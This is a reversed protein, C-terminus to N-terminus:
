GSPPLEELVIEADVPALPKEERGVHGFLHSRRIGYLSYIVLGLGMWLVFLLLTMPSLALALMACTVAGLAALVPFRGINLPVKFPRPLDPKAYRLVVVGICVCVFAFLTGVNTVQGAFQLTGFGAVLMVGIAVGVTTRHPTGFKGHVASWSKPLLGDRALAFFVRPGGLLLVMEVSAIGVIAGIRILNAAWAIGAHDFAYGFPQGLHAAAATVSLGNGPACAVGAAVNACDPLFDTYPVMGMLVLSALIYLATCIGLSALIGIPLDRKPRKTEEATTSVADFGIYAFFIIAGGALIPGVVGLTAYWAGSPSPPPSLALNAGKVFFLGVGIIVAIIALKIAVMVGAAKASEKSGIVLVTAIAAVLLMAPLDVFGGNAPSATFTAPLTVGFVSQVFATFNASWAIAVGAAGVAYELVLAWGLIWAMTEGLASYTYAYASGSTPIAAAMEAYALGALACIFGVLIFSYIIHPGAIQAGLGAYAFIGAGIIAGVGLITLDFATLSKKLSKSPDNAQEIVDEPSKKLGYRALSRKLLSM